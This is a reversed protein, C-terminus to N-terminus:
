MFEPPSSLPVPAPLMPARPTTRAPTATASPAPTSSPNQSASPPPTGSRAPHRAATRPTTSTKTKVRARARPKSAHRPTRAEGTGVGRPVRPADITAPAITAPRAVDAARRPRHGPQALAFYLLATVVVGATLAAAPRRICARSQSTRGRRRPPMNWRLGPLHARTNLPVGDAAPSPQVTESHCPSDSRGSSGCAGDAALFLNDPERAAHAIAIATDTPDPM